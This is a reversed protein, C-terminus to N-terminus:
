DASGFNPPAMRVQYCVGQPDIDIRIQALDHLAGSLGLSDILFYPHSARHVLKVSREEDFAPDNRTTWFFQVPVSASGDLCTLDIQVFKVTETNSDQPVSYVFFPDVGTVAFTTSSSGLTMSNTSNLLTQFHRVFSHSTDLAVIPPLETFIHNRAEREVVTIFVFNPSWREVLDQLKNPQMGESWHLHVIDTFTAAMYPSLANGFSDRLWLVRKNNLASPSHVLIPRFSMDFSQIQGEYLVEGTDWNSQKIQLPAELIGVSPEVESTLNSRNLFRALDGGNRPHSSIQFFASANPWVLEPAEVAVQAAFERFAVGAGLLNWHTDTRFYLPDIFKSKAERMESRVDIISLGANSLFIDLVTPDPPLMWNPLFEQYITEKNPGILIKFVEVGRKSLFAEWSKIAAKVNQGFEADALSAPRRSDTITEVYNDGLFLWGQKGIVVESSNISVGLATLPESLYGTLFDLNYLVEPHLLKGYKANDASLINVTPVILMSLLVSVIFMAFPRYM